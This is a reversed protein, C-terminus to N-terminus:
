KKSAEIIKVLLDKAKVEYKNFDKLNERNLHLQGEGANGRHQGKSYYKNKAVEGSSIVWYKIVDRWVAIWVFVDCSGPKIQQFNMDFQSGSDSALAKIYLPGSDKADVARSAKVEIKILQKNQKYLFDYENDFNPYEKKTPKIMEPILSHLHNQAWTIGFSTPSNYKEFIYLHKNRSLYNNRIKLYNSLSIKKLALLNSILYEYENFPYVSVLGSLDKALKKQSDLPLLKYLKELDKKLIDM